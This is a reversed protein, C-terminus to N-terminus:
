TWLRSGSSSRTWTALNPSSLASLRNSGASPLFNVLSAAGVIM